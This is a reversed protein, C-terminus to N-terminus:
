KDEYKALIEGYRRKEEENLAEMEPTSIEGRCPFKHTEFWEKRIIERRIEIEKFMENLEEICEKNM